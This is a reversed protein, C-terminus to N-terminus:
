NSDYSYYSRSFTCICGDIYFDSFCYVDLVPECSLEDFRM